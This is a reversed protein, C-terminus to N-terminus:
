VINGDSDFIKYGSPCNNKANSIEKYAGLQSAINNWSKRVRYLNGKYIINGNCDFVYYGENCVSIANNLDGYAGIQSAINDWSKRVRYLNDQKIKINLIGEVIAKAIKDANYTESDKKNDCFCCEILIAKSVTNKLVYLESGDKVGRNTFGLQSINNCIRTSIDNTSNDYQFVEIGHAQTNFANFHISIDLDVKHNNCKDVINILNQAISKGGEDTCDYVTHGENRLLSIVKDKVVRSEKTESLYGNAGPVHWNHGAHVNFKSM